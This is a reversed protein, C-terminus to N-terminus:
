AVYLPTSGLGERLDCRDLQSFLIHMVGVHGYTAAMHLPTFQGYVLAGPDSGGIDILLKM